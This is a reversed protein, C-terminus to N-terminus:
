TTGTLSAQLEELSQGKTEPVLMWIFLLSLGGVMAFIYFTGQASWEFMFNFGYSVFWGTTWSTLAVISGASVKINIPFIESMIIWPLGGIGIAFFGFYVLINIFVFVPIFEPFLNMEQEDGCV